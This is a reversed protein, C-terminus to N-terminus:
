GCRGAHGTSTPGDAETHSQLTGQLPVVNRSTEVADESCFAHRRGREPCPGLPPPHDTDLRPGPSVAPPGAHWRRRAWGREEEEWTHPSPTTLFTNKVDQPSHPGPGSM